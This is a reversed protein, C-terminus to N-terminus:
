KIKFPFPASLNVSMLPVPLAGAGQPQFYLRDMSSGHDEIVRGPSRPVPQLNYGVRYHDLVGLQELEVM